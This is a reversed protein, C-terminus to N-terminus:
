EFGNPVSAAVFKRFLSSSEPEFQMDVFFKLPIRAYICGRTGILQIVPLRTISRPMVMGCTFARGIKDNTTVRSGNKIYLTDWFFQEVNSSISFFLLVSFQRKNLGVKEQSKLNITSM